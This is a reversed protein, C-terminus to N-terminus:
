GRVLMVGLAVIVLSLLLNVRGIWSAQRRLRLAEASDPAHQGVTTARPGIFFDHIMSLILVVAVLFLKTGLTHGFGSAFLQGSWVQEWGFGHSTLNFLGTVLLVGLCLWGIGRFRKGTQSILPIMLTRHEPRRLIPVVVAALFVMGGIWITAAILHLWVSFLYFFHV